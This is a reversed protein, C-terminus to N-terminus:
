CARACLHSSENVPGKIPLPPLVLPHGVCVAYLAEDFQRVEANHERKLFAALTRLRYSEATAYATLRGLGSREREEKNMLEASSRGGEEGGGGGSGSSMGHPRPRHQYAPATTGSQAALAAARAAAAPLPQSQVDEPLFVLKKASKSTRAPLALKPTTQAPTGKPGGGSAAAGGALQKPGGSSSSRRLHLPLASLPKPGANSPQPQQQSGGGGNISTSAALSSSAQAPLSGFASASIPRSMFHPQLPTPPCSLYTPSTLLPSPRGSLIGFTSFPMPSKERKGEARALRSEERGQGVEM